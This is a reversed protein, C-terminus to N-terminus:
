ATEDPITEADPITEDAIQPRDAGRHVIVTLPLGDAGTHAVEQKDKYDANNKLWFCPGAAPQGTFLMEEVSDVVLAKARYVTDSFEDKAGYELLGQRTMGLALALGMITIPRKETKRTEFYIDIATQMEEPTKFIPPRGGSHKSKTNDKM